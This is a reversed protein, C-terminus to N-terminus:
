AGNRWALGVVRYGSLSAIFPAALSGPMEVKAKPKRRIKVSSPKDDHLSDLSATRDKDDYGYGIALGHVMAENDHLLFFAPINSGGKERTHPMRDRLAAALGIMPAVSLDQSFHRLGAVNLPLKMAIENNMAAKSM